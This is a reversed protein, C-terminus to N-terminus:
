NYLSAVGEENQALALLETRFRDIAAMYIQIELKVCNRRKVQSIGTDNGHEELIVEVGILGSPEILYINMGWFARGGKTGAEYVIPTHGDWFENLSKALGMLSETTDYVQTTGFYRGNSAQVRLEILDEDKWIVELELQSDRSDFGM